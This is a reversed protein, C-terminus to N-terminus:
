FLCFLCTIYGFLRLVVSPKMLHEHSTSKPRLALARSQKKIGKAEATCTYNINDQATSLFVGRRRADQHRTREEPDLTYTLESENIRGAAYRQSKCTLTMQEYKFVEAPSVTLTPSSFLETSLTGAVCVCSTMMPVCVGYCM